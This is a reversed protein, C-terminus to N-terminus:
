HDRARIQVRFREYRLQDNLECFRASKNRKRETPWSTTTLRALLDQVVRLVLKAKWVFAFLMVLALFRVGLRLFLEDLCLVGYVFQDHLLEFSLSKLIGFLVTLNYLRSEVHNWNVRCSACTRM